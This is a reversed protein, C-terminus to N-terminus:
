SARPPSPATQVSHAPPVMEARQRQDLVTCARMLTALQDASKTVDMKAPVTDESGHFMMSGHYLGDSTHGSTSGLHRGPLCKGGAKGSSDM